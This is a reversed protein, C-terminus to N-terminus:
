LFIRSVLVPKQKEFISRKKPYTDLFLNLSKKFNDIAEDMNDGFDAVGTEENSVICIKKGNMDEERVLINVSLKEM